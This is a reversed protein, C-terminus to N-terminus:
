KSNIEWRKPSFFFLIKNRETRRNSETLIEFCMQQNQEGQTREGREGEDDDNDDHWVMLYCLNWEECLHFIEEVYGDATNLSIQLEFLARRVHHKM